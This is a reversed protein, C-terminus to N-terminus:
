QSVYFKATFIYIINTLSKRMNRMYRKLCFYPLFKLIVLYFSGFYIEIIVFHTAAFHFEM